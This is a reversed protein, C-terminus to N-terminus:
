LIGWDAFLFFLTGISLLYNFTGFGNPGLVRASVLVLILKFFRSFAQSLLLWFSNKIFTQKPSTNTFLLNELDM